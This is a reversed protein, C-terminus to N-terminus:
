NGRQALLLTSIAGLLTFNIPISLLTGPFINVFPTSRPLFHALATAATYSFLPVIATTLVDPFLKFILFDWTIVFAVGM